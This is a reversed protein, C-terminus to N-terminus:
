DKMHPESIRWMEKMEMTVEEIKKAVSQGLEVLQTRSKEEDGKIQEKLGEAIGSLLQELSDYRLYSAKIGTKWPEQGKILEKEHEM